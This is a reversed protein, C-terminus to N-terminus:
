EEKYTKEEWIDKRLKLVRMVENHCVGQKKKLLGSRSIIKNISIKKNKGGKL